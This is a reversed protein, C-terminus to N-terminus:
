NKIILKLKVKYTKNARGAFNIFQDQGLEFQYVSLTKHEGVARFSFLKCNYFFLTNLMSEGTSNGLLGKESLINDAEEPIPEAQRNSTGVGQATLYAM